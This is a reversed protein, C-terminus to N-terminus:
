YGPNQKLQPNRDLDTQPIPLYRNHVAFKRDEIKEVGTIEARMFENPEDYHVTGTARNLPGNLVTEAIMKGSDDKWRLIDARRHGEGALEITRERRILERLKEKTGYKARDVDPMNVRNRIKNLADYVEDSPGKLENSAEALSLLAEAYRYVIYQTETPDLVGEYQELPLLYKAWTLGTKSANNAAAPYNANKSGDPYNVDLTNLISNYCKSNWNIGPVLVTVAMRPDRGKFPHTPDYGSGAEEKTLGNAMEYMDILNQTPVMSSWGGDLNNPVTIFWENANPKLKQVSLIIEKSNRGDLSFLHSFDGELEYQNLAVIAKAADLSRQYDGYYLASRMKLALATGKAVYGRAQPADKIDSLAADIEDYVQKKVDAEDTRPVQAESASGSLPIIPVGGYWWNMKFYQSARIIRIQAIMDKKVAEDKFEVKNINDLFNDCRRITSFNYFSKGPNGPQLSGDGIVRWGEHTHFSFGIDSACDLYFFEEGWLWGNYCGILFKQADEETKWTTSPSLADKPYTSLFDDCSSLLMVCVIYLLYNITKKM